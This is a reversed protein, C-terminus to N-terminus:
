DLGRDAAGLSRLRKVRSAPRPALDAGARTVRLGLEVLMMPVDDARWYSGSGYGPIRDIVVFGLERLVKSPVQFGLVRGIDGTSMYATENFVVTVM